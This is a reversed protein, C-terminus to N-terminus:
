RGHRDDAGPQALDDAGPLDHRHPRRPDAADRKRPLAALDVGGLRIPGGAIRAAPEPLLGMIALATISKGSGSEGAICLTEGRALTFSLDSSSRRARRGRRRVSVALGAVALVPRGAGAAQPPGPGDPARRQTMRLRLAPLLLSVVWNPMDVIESIRLDGCVSCLMYADVPTM